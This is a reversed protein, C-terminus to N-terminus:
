MIEKQSDSIHIKSPDIM